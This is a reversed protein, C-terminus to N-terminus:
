VILAGTLMNRYEDSDYESHVTYDFPIEVGEALLWKIKNHIQQEMTYESPVSPMYDVVAVGDVVKILRPINLVGNRSIIYTEGNEKTKYNASYKYTITESM